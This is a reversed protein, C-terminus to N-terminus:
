SGSVADVSREELQGNKRRHLSQALDFQSTVITSAREHRDAIIEM